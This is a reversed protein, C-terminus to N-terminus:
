QFCSVLFRLRLFKNETKRPSGCPLCMTWLNQVLPCSNQIALRSLTSSLPNLSVHSNRLKGSSQPLALPLRRNELTFQRPVELFRARARSTARANRGGGGDREQSKPAPLPVLAAPWRLPQPNTIALYEQDCSQHIELDHIPLQSQCIRYETGLATPSFRDDAAMRHCPLAPIWSCHPRTAPGAANTKKPLANRTPCPWRSFGARGSARPPMASAIGQYSDKKGSHWEWMESRSSNRM